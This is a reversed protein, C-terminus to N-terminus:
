DPLSRAAERAARAVFRLILLHKETDREALQVLLDWMTTDRVPRLKNRLNALQVQDDEELAILREVVGRLQAVERGHTISPVDDDNPILNAQDVVTNALQIFMRHHRSEDELLLAALYRVFANPSREALDAYVGLLENEQETHATFHEFLEQEWVSMASHLMDERTTTM